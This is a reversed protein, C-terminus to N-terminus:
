GGCTHWPHVRGGRGGNRGCCDCAGRTAQQGRGHRGRLFCCACGRRRDDEPPRKRCAEAGDQWGRLASFRGEYASTDTGSKSATEPGTVLNQVRDTLTMAIKLDHSTWFYFKLEFTTTGSVRDSEIVQYVYRSCVLDRRGTIVVYRSVLDDLTHSLLSIFINTMIEQSERNDHGGGFSFCSWLSGSAKWLKRKILLLWLRM